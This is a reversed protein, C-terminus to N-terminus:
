EMIISTLNYNIMLKDCKMTPPFKISKKRSCMNLTGVSCASIEGLNLGSFSKRIEAQTSQADGQEFM